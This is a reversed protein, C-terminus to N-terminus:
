KKQTLRLYVFQRFTLHDVPNRGKNAKDWELWIERVMEAPLWASINAEEKANLKLTKKRGANPLNFALKNM